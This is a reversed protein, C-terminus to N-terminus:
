FRCAVTQAHSECHYESKWCRPDDVERYRLETADYIHQRVFPTGLMVVFGWGEWTQAVKNGARVEAEVIARLAPCLRAIRDVDVQDM